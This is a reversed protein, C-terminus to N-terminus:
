PKIKSRLGHIRGHWRRNTLGAGCGSGYYTAVGAGWPVHGRREHPMSPIVSRLMHMHFHTSARVGPRAYALRVAMAVRFNMVVGSANCMVCVAHDASHSRCSGSNNILHYHERCCSQRRQCIGISAPFKRAIPVLRGPLTRVTM